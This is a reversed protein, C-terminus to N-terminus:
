QIDQIVQVFNIYDESHRISIWTSSNNFLHNIFEHVSQCLDSKEPLLSEGQVDNLEMDYGIERALILCKRAVDMGDLDERPDPETFGKEHAIKVLKSFFQSM